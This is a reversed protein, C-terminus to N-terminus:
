PGSVLCAVCHNLSMTRGAGAARSQNSQPKLYQLEMRHLNLLKLGCYRSGKSVSTLVATAVFVYM